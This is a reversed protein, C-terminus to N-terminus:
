AYLGTGMATGGMNIEYLVRQVAALAKVEDYYADAPVEFDGLRDHETRTKTSPMEAEVRSPATRHVRVMSADIRMPSPQVPQGGAAMAHARRACELATGDM